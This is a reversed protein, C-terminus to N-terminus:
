ESQLDEGIKIITDSIYYHPPIVLNTPAPANRYVRGALDFRSGHCPCFYGGPWESGLDTPGQEPRYTPVCGLHTCLATTVLYEPRLSRYDNKAYTPQQSLVSSGPDALNTLHSREKLDSLNRSTRHLIWVPKSRWEITMQQGPKLKSIDVDVPAGANRAQASPLMYRVFPITALVVGSGAVVSTTTILFRRRYNDTQKNM